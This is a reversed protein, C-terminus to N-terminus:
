GWNEAVTYAITVAGVLLVTARLAAPPLRRGIRSGLAGGVVSGGAILGVAVWSIPAVALFIVGSV